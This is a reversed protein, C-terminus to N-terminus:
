EVHKFEGEIVNGDEPHETTTNDVVQDEVVVLPPAEEKPAAATGQQRAVFAEAVKQAETTFTKVIGAALGEALISFISEGPSEGIAEDYLEPQRRRKKRSPM